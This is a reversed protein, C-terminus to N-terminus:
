APIPSDNERKTSGNSPARPKFSHTPQAVQCLPVNRETRENTMESLPINWIISLVKMLDPADPLTLAELDAPKTEIYVRANVRSNVRAAQFLCGRLSDHAKRFLIFPESARATSEFLLHRKATPVWISVYTHWRWPVGNLHAECDEGTCPVTRGGYFHTACGILDASTVIAVLPRMVPCRILHLSPGKPDEPLDNSFTLM